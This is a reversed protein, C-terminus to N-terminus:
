TCQNLSIVRILGSYKLIKYFAINVHFAYIRDYCFNRHVYNEFRDTGLHCPPVSFKISDKEWTSKGLGQNWWKLSLSVKWGDQIWNHKRSVSFCIQFLSSDVQFIPIWSLVLCYKMFSMVSPVASCTTAIVSPMNELHKTCARRTLGTLLKQEELWCTSRVSLIIM